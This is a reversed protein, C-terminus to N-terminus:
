ELIQNTCEMQDDREFHYGSTFYLKMDLATRNSITWIKNDSIYYLM